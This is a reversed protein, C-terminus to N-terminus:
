CIYDTVSKDIGLEDGILQSCVPVEHDHGIKEVTVGHWQITGGAPIQHGPQLTRRTM